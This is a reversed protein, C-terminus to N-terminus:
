VRREESRRVYFCQQKGIERFTREEVTELPVKEIWEGDEIISAPETFEEIISQISFPVVFKKINSDWAFGAEVTDLRDFDLHGYHLLVNNIGPTSGCGTIAILDRAKFDEHMHLQDKTMPIDSGLDIVHVGTELCAKYVNLNWDGEACNVIVRPHVRRILAITSLVDRLDIFDFATRKPYKKLMKLSGERYLDALFVSHGSELLDRSAIMGQMGSGGLVLFDYKTPTRKLLNKLFM